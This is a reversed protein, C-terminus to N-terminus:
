KNPMVELRKANEEIELPNLVSNDECSSNKQKVSNKFSMKYKCDKHIYPEILVEFKERSDAKIYITHDKHISINIDFKTKFFEKIVELDKLTFCNTAISYSIGDRYGDDMFWVAIGLGDLSYLLKKPVRKVKKSGYFSTYISNLYDSAKLIVYYCNYTKGTRKDFQSKYFGKCCFPNLNEEKWKCYGEQKLSHAFGGAAHHNKKRKCMFGDGLMTGIIIQRQEHTPSVKCYTNATLGLSRAYDSIASDSCGLIDQMAFYTYGQNYLEMFKNTDFKRSYQFNSEKSVLAKRWNHITVHNVGVIRGIESDNLGQKYLKLFKEQNLKRKRDRQSLIGNDKRFKKIARVDTKLEQAIEEDEKGLNYIELFQNLTFNYDM